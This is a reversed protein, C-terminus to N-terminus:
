VNPWKNIRGFLIYSWIYQGVNQGHSSKGHRHRKLTGSLPQLAAVTWKKTTGACCESGDTVRAKTKEEETLPDYSVSIHPKYICIHYCAANYYSHFSLCTSFKM